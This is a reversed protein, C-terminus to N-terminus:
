ESLVEGTLWLVGGVSAQLHLRIHISTVGRLALLLWLSSEGSGYHLVLM